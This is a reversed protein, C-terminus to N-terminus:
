TRAVKGTTTFRFDDVIRILAPVKFTQLRSRCHMTILDSLRDRDVQDGAPSVLAIVIQGTFPNAKGYVRCMKVAPLELLVAEVEEPHVKGDKEYLFATEQRHLAKKM